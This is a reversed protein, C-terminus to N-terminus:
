IRTQVYCALGRITRFDEETTGAIDFDIGFTEEIGVVLDLIAASDLGLDDTLQADASLEGPDRQLELREVVVKTIESVLQDLTTM